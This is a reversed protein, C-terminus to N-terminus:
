VTMPRVIVVEDSRAHAIAITGADIWIIVPHLETRKIILNNICIANGPVSRQDASSRGQKFPPVAQIECVM